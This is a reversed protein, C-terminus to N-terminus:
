GELRFKANSAILPSDSLAEPWEKRDISSMEWRHDRFMNRIFKEVKLPDTIIRTLLELGSYLVNLKFVVFVISKNHLWNGLYEMGWYAIFSLMVIQLSETRVGIYKYLWVTFKPTSLAFIDYGMPQPWNNHQISTESGHRCTHYLM